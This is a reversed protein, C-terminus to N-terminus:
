LVGKRQLSSKEGFEAALCARRKQIKQEREIVYPLSLVFYVMYGAETRLSANYVAVSICCVSVVAALLCYVKEKGQAYRGVKRAKRYTLWFFGFYFILGIWGCELYMFAYHIWTYHMHGYAEHFPTNVIAFTATDCNGLGYGFLQQSWNKLWLDNIQPIANLRNLDGSSTYGKDSLANEYLWEVSFFGEFSPFFVVLLAACGIVAVSGGAIVLFKRWSFDTFLVALALILVFEAFFFKLEAMAAVILAMACKSICAWTKEKKQLYCLMSKTVVIVFFINTYGNAGKETGFIGGLYDGNIGQGFFQFVSVAANIWFLIDFIKLYDEIDRLRLFLAVALFAMYFRFNNRVGWLYYLYSQYEVAYVAATYVLFFCIWGLIGQVPKWCLRKQAYLMLVLLVGWAADLTYRIAWPLGLLENLTGLFFPLMIILWMLWGPQSRKKIRLTFNTEMGNDKSYVIKPM